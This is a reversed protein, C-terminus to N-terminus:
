DPLQIHRYKKARKGAKTIFGLKQLFARAKDKDQSLETKVQRLANLFKNREAETM